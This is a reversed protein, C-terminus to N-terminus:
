QASWSELKSCIVCLCLLSILFFLRKLDFCRMIMSVAKLPHPQDTVTDKPIEIEEETDQSEHVYKVERSKRRQETPQFLCLQRWKNPAYFSKLPAYLESVDVICKQNDERVTRM